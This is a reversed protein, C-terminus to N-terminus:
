QLWLVTMAALFVCKSLLIEELTSLRFVSSYEGVLVVSVSVAMYIYVPRLWLSVQSYNLGLSIDPLPKIPLSLM